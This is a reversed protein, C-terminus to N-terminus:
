GLPTDHFELPIRGIERSLSPRRAPLGVSRKTHSLPFPTALFRVQSTFEVVVADWFVNPPAPAVGLCGLKRAALYLPM